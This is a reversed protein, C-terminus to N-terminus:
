AMLVCGSIALLAMVRMLLGVMLLTSELICSAQNQQTLIGLKEMQHPIGVRFCWKVTGMGLQREPLQVWNNASM